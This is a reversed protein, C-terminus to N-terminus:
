TFDMNFKDNYETRDDKFIDSSKEGKGLLLFAAKEFAAKKVIM